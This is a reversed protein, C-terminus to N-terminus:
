RYKDNLGGGGKIMPLIKEIRRQRTEEKKASSIYEAYERRCSKSMSEFSKRAASNQRLANTLEQPIELPKDRNPKIQKGDDVLRMAELVYERILKPRIEKASQFRMQRQSKTTGEQANTLLGQPDALLAGQFFWLGFYSKFAGLGVVNKGQHCYVPTGWKITEDMGMSSLLARLQTLESKWRPASELFEEVSKNRKM